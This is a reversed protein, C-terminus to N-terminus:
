KLIKLLRTFFGFGEHFAAHDVELKIDSIVNGDITSKELYVGSSTYIYGNLFGLIKYEPSHIIKEFDKTLVIKENSTEYIDKNQLGVIDNVSVAM